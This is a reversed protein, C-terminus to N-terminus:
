FVAFREKVIVMDSPKLFFPEKQRGDMIDKVNVTFNQTRGNEDQRIVVVARLNAKAYDPGGAEMIAELVTIPRETTVKGPRLVAGSVFTVFHSSVVSVLVEKSVLQPGYLRLLEAQLASPQLGAAQVEGVLPLDLKGDRRITQTTDLNPASPFAVKIVDGERLTLPASKPTGTETATNTSHPPPLQCGGAFALAALMAVAAFQRLLTKASHPSKAEACAPSTRMNIRLHNGPRVSPRTRPSSLPTAPTTRPLHSFRQRPPHHLFTPSALQAFSRAFTHLHSTPRTRAARLRAKKTQAPVTGPRRPRGCPRAHVTKQDGTEAAALTRKGAGYGIFIALINQMFKVVQRM